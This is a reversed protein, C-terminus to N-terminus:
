ALVGTFSMSFTFANNLKYESKLEMKYLYGKYVQNGLVLKVAKGKKCVNETTYWKVLDDFGHSGSRCSLLALGEITIDWASEGGTYLFLQTGLTPTVSINEAKKISFNTVVTTGNRNKYKGVRFNFCPKINGALNMAAAVGNNRNFISIAGM